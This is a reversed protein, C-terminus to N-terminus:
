AFRIDEAFAGRGPSKRPSTCKNFPLYNTDIYLRDLLYIIVNTSNIIQKIVTYSSQHIKRIGKLEHLYVM